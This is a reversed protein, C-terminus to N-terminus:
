NVTVGELARDETSIYANNEYKGVDEAHVWKNEYQVPATAFYNIKCYKKGDVVKYLNGDTKIYVGQPIDTNNEPLVGKTGTTGPGGTYGICQRMVRYGFPFQKNEDRDIFANDESFVEIHSIAHDACFIGPRGIVSAGPIFIGGCHSYNNLGVQDKKKFQIEIGGITLTAPFINNASLEDIKAKAQENFILSIYAIKNDKRVLIRYQGDKKEVIKGPDMFEFVDGNELTTARIKETEAGSEYVALPTNATVKGVAEYWFM